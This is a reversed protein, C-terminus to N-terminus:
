KKKGFKFLSNMNNFKPLEDEDDDDDTRAKKKPDVSHNDNIDDNLDDADANMGNMASSVDPKKRKPNKKKGDM